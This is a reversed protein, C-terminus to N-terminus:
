TILRLISILVKGELFRFILILLYESFVLHVKDRVWGGAVRITTKLKNQEVFNKFINMIDAENETLSINETIKYTTHNEIEM